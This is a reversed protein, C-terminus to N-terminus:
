QCIYHVICLGTIENDTLKLIAAHVQRVINFNFVTMDNKNSRFPHASFQKLLPLNSHLSIAHM